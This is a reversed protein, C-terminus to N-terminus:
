VCVCMHVCDNAICIVYWERVAYPLRYVFVGVGTTNGEKPCNEWPLPSQFSKFLYFISWSIIVNYYLAIFFCVQFVSVSLPTVFLSLHLTIM